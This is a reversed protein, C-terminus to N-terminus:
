LSTPTTVLRRIRSWFTKHRQPAEADALASGVPLGAKLDHLNDNFSGIQAALTGAEAGSQAMYDVLSVSHRVDINWKRAANMGNADIVAIHNFAGCPEGACPLSVLFALDFRYPGTQKCLQELAAPADFLGRKDGILPAFNVYDIGKYYSLSGFAKQDAVADFASFGQRHFAHALVKAPTLTVARQAKEIM